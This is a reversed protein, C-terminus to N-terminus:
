IHLPVDEMGVSKEKLISTLYGEVDVASSMSLAKLAIEHCEGMTLHRIVSKIEPVSTPCVSLEDLGLGLLVPVAITESGLEGCLGVWIDQSHGADVTNKILRLVAPHLPKFINAVRPNGRDCALTYQTLDNSGISFFGVEKAFDEALIAASPVEVMIGVEINEDYRVGDKKLERQTKRLIDKLLKIEEIASVLPFMIKVNGFTSARLIARLQTKLIKKEKLYVRIARWGLFPNADRFSADQLLKDGGIDVTRIIISDPEISEACYKYVEFQEEETPAGNMFLFETRFLGIGRAGHNLASGIEMPLEINASLEITHGDVTTPPIDSLNVLGNMYDRYRRDREEYTKLTSEDPNIVVIGRTGDVIILDGSKTHKLLDQVGVVAPIDFARAVITTHSTRGGMETVIGKVSERPLLAMNSATIGHAVINCEEAIGDYMVSTKGKINRIVRSVVDAMEGWKDRFFVSRERDLSSAMERVTRDFVFEANRKSRRINNKTKHIIDGDELFLLQADFIKASYPDTVEELRNKITIIEERTREVAEDFKQVEKEIDSVDYGMIFGDEGELLIAKKLSIGPSAPIGRLIKNRRRRM